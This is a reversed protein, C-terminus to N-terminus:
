GEDVVLAVGKRLDLPGSLFANKAGDTQLVVAQGAACKDLAQQLRATDLKSEDADSLKGGSSTLQAKITACAAPVKPESVQRRDQASASVALAALLVTLSSIRKM